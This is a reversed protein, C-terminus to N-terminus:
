KKEATVTAPAALGLAAERLAASGHRAIQAPDAAIARAADDLPEALGNVLLRRFHDSDGDIEAGAEHHRSGDNGVCLTKLKM